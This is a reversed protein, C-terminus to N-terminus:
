RVPLILRSPRERGHHITIEASQLEADFFDNAGTNHNRDHAPFDSSTIELRIRHGPLFRNATPNLEIEVEVIEGPALLEERDLGNRHRARVMGYAVELAPGAPPEDVLRAFLDTDPTSCSIFLVARPDGAVERSETLQPTRYRLIDRRHDLRRRNGPESYLNRSWLTPVPDLPDFTYGAESSDGPRKGHCLGLGRGNEGEADLYYEVDTYRGPPWHEATRWKGAGMVFFRVPPAADAGNDMRKLWHDFWRIIQQQHDFSAGPGFDFEGLERKGFGGHNWPGIVVKSDQRATETAGIQQLTTLHSITSICHDFWGTFDLNPVTVHAHSEDFRFHRSAPDRMWEAVYERLGPPLLEPLRGYPLMHLLRGHELEQWQRDAEDYTHPGPLGQRRRMDPAMHCTLWHLRRGPKFGGPYDLKDWEFPCATNAMAKLHPPQLRALVWNMWANYSHGVVGVNGDCYDRAALWEVSDYGDEADGTKSVYQPIFEGDSEYRGRSDQVVVAYGARVYAAYRALGLGEQDKCYPTRPLLGPYRNGADPRFVNARLITGDRMAAEVNHEVIIGLTHVHSQQERTLM